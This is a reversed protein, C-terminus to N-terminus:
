EIYWGVSIFHFICISNLIEYLICIYNLIEYLICIYISFSKIYCTHIHVQSSEPLHMRHALTVDVEAYELISMLTYVIPLLRFWDVHMEVDSSPCDVIVRKVTLKPAWTDIGDKLM